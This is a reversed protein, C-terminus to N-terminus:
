RDQALAPPRMGAASVVFAPPAARAQRALDKFAAEVADGIPYLFQCGVAAGGRWRIKAAVPQLGEPRLWLSAGGVSGRVHALRFGTTSFDTLLARQWGSAGDSIEVILECRTRPAIRRGIEREVAHSATGM